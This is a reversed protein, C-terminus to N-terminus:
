LRFLLKIHPIRLSHIMTYYTRLNYTLHELSVHMCLYTLENSPIYYVFSQIVRLWAKCSRSKVHQFVTELFVYALKQSSM